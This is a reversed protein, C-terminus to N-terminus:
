VGEHSAWFLANVIGEGVVLLRCSSVVITCSSYLYRLLGSLSRSFILGDWLGM